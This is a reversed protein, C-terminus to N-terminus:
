SNTKYFMDLFIWGSLMEGLTFINQGSVKSLGKHGLIWMCIGQDRYMEKFFLNVSNSLLDFCKKKPSWKLAWLRIEQCHISMTLLLNINTVVPVLLTLSFFMIKNKTYHICTYFSERTNFIFKTSSHKRSNNNMRYNKWKIDIITIPCPRDCVTDFCKM